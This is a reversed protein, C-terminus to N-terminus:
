IQDPNNIFTNKILNSRTVPIVCLIIGYKINDPQLFMSPTYQSSFLPNCTRPEGNDSHQSMLEQKTSTWGLSVRGWM